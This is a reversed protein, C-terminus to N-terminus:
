RIVNITSQWVDDLRTNERQVNPGRPPNTLLGTSPHDMVIESPRGVGASTRAMGDRPSATSLFHILNLPVWLSAEKGENDWELKTLSYRIIHVHSIIYPPLLLSNFQISNFQFLHEVPPPIFLKDCKQVVSSKSREIQSLVNFHVLVATLRM